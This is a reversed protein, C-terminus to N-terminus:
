AGEPAPSFKLDGLAWYFQGGRDEQPSLIVHYQIFHTGTNNHSYKAVGMTQLPTAAGLETKVLTGVGQGLKGQGGKLIKTEGERKEIRAGKLTKRVTGGVRM